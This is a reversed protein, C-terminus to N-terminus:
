GSSTQLALKPKGLYKDRSARSMLKNAMENGIFVEKEPDWKLDDGVMLAINCMHCSTMTRHHTYVDSIPESRDKVCDFFNKMHSNIPKNKYLKAMAEELNKNDTESLDEVPKGTLKGRNVFFRGKSTM